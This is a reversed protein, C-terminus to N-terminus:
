IKIINSYSLAKSDMQSIGVSSLPFGSINDDIITKYDIIEKIWDPIDTISDPIAIGTIGSKFIEKIPSGCLDNTNHKDLLESFKEYKDPFKNKLLNLSHKDLIIKAVNISNRENIDLAPLSSDKVYNWVVSAKIGQNSLPNVYNSM